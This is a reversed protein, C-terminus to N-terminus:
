RYRSVIPYCENRKAAYHFINNRKDTLRLVTKDINKIRSYLYKIIEKNGRQAAIDLVTMNNSNQALFWQFFRDRDLLYEYSETVAVLYEYKEERVCHHIVLPLSVEIGTNQEEDFLVTIDREYTKLIEICEKRLAESPLNKKQSLLRLLIAIFKRNEKIEESYSKSSLNSERNIEVYDESSNNM